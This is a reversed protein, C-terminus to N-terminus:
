ANAMRNLGYCWWGGFVKTFFQVYEGLKRISGREYTDNNVNSITTM